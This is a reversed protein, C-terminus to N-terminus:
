FQPAVMALGDARGGTIFPLWAGIWSLEMGLTMDAYFWKAQAPFLM